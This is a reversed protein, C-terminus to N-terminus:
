SRHAKEGILKALKLVGRSHVRMKPKRKRQRRQARREAESEITELHPTKM